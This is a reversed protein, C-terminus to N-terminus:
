LTESKCLLGHDSVDENSALYRQECSCQPFLGADGCDNSRDDMARMPIHFTKRVGLQCILMQNLSRCFSILHLFITGHFSGESLHM